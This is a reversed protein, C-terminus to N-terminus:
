YLHKRDITSVNQFINLSHLLIKQFIVCSSGLTHLEEKWLSMKNFTNKNHRPLYLQIVFKPSGKKDASIRKINFYSRSFIDLQPVSTFNSFLFKVAPLILPTSHPPKLGSAAEIIPPHFSQQQSNKPVLVQLLSLLHEIRAYIMGSFSMQSTVGLFNTENMVDLMIRGLEKNTYNFDQIKRHGGRQKLIEMVRTLTKAIVWIGDYAFGHFKSSELGKEKRLRNYEMEYEHPTRGSIGRIQKTSLPEFDVSIYGEMAALLKKTTCNTSNAQEWWNGQYWGPIIWQYKSGYMNLNYACCFVKAALNEDFQGIIIRVDNDKLKKVNICPDNSFSETDAIQIEAKELENTLDNRVARALVTKWERDRATGSKNDEQVEQAGCSYKTGLARHGYGLYVNRKQQKNQGM